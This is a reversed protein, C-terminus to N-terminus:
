ITNHTLIHDLWEESERGEVKNCHNISRSSGVPPQSIKDYHVAQLVQDKGIIEHNLESFNHLIFCTYIVYPLDHLNVDM